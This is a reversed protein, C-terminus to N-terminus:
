KQEGQFGILLAVPIITALIGLLASNQFGVIILAMWLLLGIFAINKSIMLKKM